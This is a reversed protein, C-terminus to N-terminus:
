SSKCTPLATQTAKLLPIQVSTVHIHERHPLHAQSKRKTEDELSKNFVLTAVKSFIMFGCFPTQTKSNGRPPFSGQQVLVDTKSKRHSFLLSKKM